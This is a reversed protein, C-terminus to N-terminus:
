VIQKRQWIEISMLDETNITINFMTNDSSIILRNDPSRWEDTLTERPTYEWVEESSHPLKQADVYWWKILFNNDGSAMGDFNFPVQLSKQTTITEDYVKVEKYHVIAQQKFSNLKSELEAISKTQADNIKNLHLIDDTNSKAIAMLDNQTQKITNIIAAIDDLHKQLESTPKPQDQQHPNHLLLTAGKTKLFQVFSNSDYAFDFIDNKSYFQFLM